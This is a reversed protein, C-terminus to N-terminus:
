LAMEQLSQDIEEDTADDFLNELDSDFSNLNEEEAALNETMEDIEGAENLIGKLEQNAAEEEEFFVLDNDLNDLENNSKEVLSFNNVKSAPAYVAPNLKGGIIVVGAIITLFLVVAGLIVINKNSGNFNQM